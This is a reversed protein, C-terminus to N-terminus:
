FGKAEFYSSVAEIAEQSAEAKWNALMERGIETMRAILVPSGASVTMGNDALIQKQEANIEESMRWAREEATKAAALLIEQTEEDLLSFARESVIVANKSHIAGVDTFYDTNDWAQIDIGTQASTFLSEILGTSFAQPVEAFPLITAQFGLMEGM